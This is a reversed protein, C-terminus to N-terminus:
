KNCIHGFCVNIVTNMVLIGNKYKRHFISYDSKKVMLRKGSNFQELGPTQLQLRQPWMHSKLFTVM